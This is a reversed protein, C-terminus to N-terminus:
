QNVRGGTGIPFRFVRAQLDADLEVNRDLHVQCSSHM